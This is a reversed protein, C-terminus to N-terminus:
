AALSGRQGRRGDGANRARGNWEGHPRREGEAPPLPRLHGVPRRVGRFPRHAEARERVAVRGRRPNEAAEGGDLISIIRVDAIAEPAPGVEGRRTRRVLGATGALGLLAAALFWPRRDPRERTPAALPRAERVEGRWMRSAPSTGLRPAKPESESAAAAAQAKERAPVASAARTLTSRADVLHDVTNTTAGRISIAAHRAPSGSWSAWALEGSRVRFGEHLGLRDEAGEIVVDGVEAALEPEPGPENGPEVEAPASVPEEAAPLATPPLTPETTAEAESTSAEPVPTAVDAGPVGQDIVPPDDSPLAREGSEAGESAADTAGSESGSAEVPAASEGGLADDEAGAEAGDGAASAGDAAEAEEAAGDVEAAADDMGSSAEESGRPEEEAEPDDAGSEQATEEGSDASPSEEAASSDDEAGPAADGSQEAASEESAADEGAADEGAADGTPEAVPEGGADAGGTGSSPADAAPQGDEAPAPLPAQRPPLLGLPDVYGEPEATVRVGLHLYPQPWEADGSPGVAGVTAGEEVVTGRIAGISGLHVLTVSYGDGTRITLAAGGGPVTGAFSVVGGAPAGVSAGAEAGIDIGRHQGALYPDGGFVFPRLVPGDVPWAWAAAGPSFVLGLAAVAGLLLTRM